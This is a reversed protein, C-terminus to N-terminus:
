TLQMKLHLGIFRERMRRRSIKSGAHLVDRGAGCAMEDGGLGETEEDGTGEIGGDRMGERAGDGTGEVEGALLGDGTGEASADVL